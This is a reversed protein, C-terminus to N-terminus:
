VISLLRRRTVHIEGIGIKLQDVVSAVLRHAQAKGLQTNGL